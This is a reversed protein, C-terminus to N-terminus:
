STVGDGFAHCIKSCFAPLDKPNRSTILNGDEVVEEDRWDAGANMMDTAEYSTLKRGAVLGCDILIQGGHCIVFTPKKEEFFRSVFDRAEPIMRLRDSNLAGGPLLLADYDDPDVDSLSADAAVLQGWDGDTWGRIAEGDPTVVEITAGARQLAGAPELLESQEFGHTSLVAVRKNKIHNNAKMPLERKRMFHVVLSDNEIAVGSTLKHCDDYQRRAM